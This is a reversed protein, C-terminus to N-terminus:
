VFISENKLIEFELAGLPIKFSIKLSDFFFLECVSILPKIYVFLVIITTLPFFFVFLCFKKIFKNVRPWRDNRLM